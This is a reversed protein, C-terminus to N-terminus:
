DDKTERTVLLLRKAADKLATVWVPIRRLTEM